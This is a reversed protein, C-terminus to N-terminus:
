TLVNQVCRLAIAHLRMQDTRALLSLYIPTSM